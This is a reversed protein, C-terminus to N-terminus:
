LKILIGIHYFMFVTIPKPPRGNRYKDTKSKPILIRYGDDRETFHDLTIHSVDDHRLLLCFSLAIVLCNRPEIVNSLNSSQIMKRIFDGNLLKKQNKSLLTRRSSSIIKSLFEDNMPNNWQNVGPIFSHVWKLAALSTEVASKTGLNLNVYTLYEASFASSFPLILSYNHDHIYNLVKRLSM